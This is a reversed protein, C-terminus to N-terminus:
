RGLPRSFYYSISVFERNTDPTAALVPVNGYSQRIRTYGLQAEIHQGFRRQLSATGSLTHGNNNESPLAGVINNQTYGGTLSGSLNRTMQQRIFAAASDMHVAAILGGGGSIIHSYNLAINTTRGQWNMSGGAAPNWTQSAPAQSQLSQVIEARQPGGFFSVSFRPSAYLTYLLLLAHTQTESKGGTPNAIL